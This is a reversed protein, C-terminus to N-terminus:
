NWRMKMLKTENANVKWFNPKSSVNQAKKM